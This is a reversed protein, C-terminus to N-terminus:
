KSFSKRLDCYLNSVKYSREPDDRDLGSAPCDDCRGYSRNDRDHICTFNAAKLLKLRMKTLAAKHNDLDKKPVLAQYEEETLLIQM